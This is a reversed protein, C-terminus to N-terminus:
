VLGILLISQWFKMLGPRRRRLSFSQWGVEMKGASSIYCPFVFIKTINVQQATYWDMQVDSVLYCYDGGKTGMWGPPCAGVSSLLYITFFSFNTIMTDWLDLKYRNISHKYLKKKDPFIFM